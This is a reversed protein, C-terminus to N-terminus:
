GGAPAAAPPPRRSIETALTATLRKLLVALEVIRREAEDLSKSTSALQRAADGALADAAAADNSWNGLDKELRGKISELGEFQRRAAENATGVEVTNRNLEAIRQELLGGIRYIGLSQVDLGEGADAAGRFPFRALRFVM